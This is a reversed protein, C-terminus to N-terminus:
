IGSFFNITARIDPVVENRIKIGDSLIQCADNTFKSACFCASMLFGFKENDYQKPNNINGFQRISLYSPHSQYSLFTYTGNQDKSNFFSDAKTFDIIKLNTVIGGNKEFIYGKINSGGKMIQEVRKVASNSIKMRQLIQRVHNKLTEITEENQHKQDVMNEPIPIGNRNNYGKIKWITLLVDRENENDTSIFINHYIFAMEYIGRAIAAATSFDIHLTQSKGNPVLPMGELSTELSRIKFTMMQMMCQTISDVENWPFPHTDWWKLLIALLSSRVSALGKACDFSITFGNM